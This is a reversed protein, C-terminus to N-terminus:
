VVSKRDVIIPQLLGHEEISKALEDIELDVDIKRVNQEGLNIKDIQIEDFNSM